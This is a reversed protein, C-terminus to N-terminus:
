ARRSTSWARPALPDLTLRIHVEGNILSLAFASVRMGEKWKDNM